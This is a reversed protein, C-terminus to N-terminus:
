DTLTIIIYEEGNTEKRLEPHFEHETVEFSHEQDVVSDIGMGDLYITPEFDNNPDLYTDACVIVTADPNMRSLIKILESVTM